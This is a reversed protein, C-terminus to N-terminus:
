RTQAPSNRSAPDTEYGTQCSVLKCEATKANIATLISTIEKMKDDLAWHTDHPMHDLKNIRDQIQHSAHDYLEM